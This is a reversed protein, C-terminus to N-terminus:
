FKEYRRRWEFIPFATMTKIVKQSVSVNGNDLVLFEAPNKIFNSVSCVVMETPETLYAFAGNGLYKDIVTFEVSDLKLDGDLFKELMYPSHIIPLEYVSAIEPKGTGCILWEPNIDLAEAIQPAIKSSTLNKNIIYSLSQQSIGILRAAESQSLSKKELIFSLRAALTSM